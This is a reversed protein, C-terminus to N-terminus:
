VRRGGKLTSQLQALQDWKGAAALKAQEPWTAPDAIRINAEKLIAELKPARTAALQAYTTIGAAQLVGSIKPGIGEIRRLDDPSSAAAPAPQPKPPTSPRKPAPGPQLEIRRGHALAEVGMLGSEADAQISLYRQLERWLWVALGALFLFFMVRGVKRFM